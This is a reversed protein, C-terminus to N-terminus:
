GSNQGVWFCSFYPLALALILTHLTEVFHRLQQPFVPNPTHLWANVKSVNEPMWYTFNYSFYKSIM